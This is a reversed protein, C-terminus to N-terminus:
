PKPRQLTPGLNAMVQRADFARPNDAPAPGKRLVIESTAEFREVTRVDMRDAFFPDGMFPDWARWGFGPGFYRWSPAWYGYGFPRGFAAGRGFFPDSQLYTQRDRATQRDVVEFTDFGSQTTLEAARYLLYREVTERSTLSNGSFTVRYHTEDIRQDSFGGLTAAGRVAPQYPTATVCASLGLTLAMAALVAVSRRM